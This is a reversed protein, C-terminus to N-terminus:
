SGGLMLAQERQVDEIREHPLWNRTRVDPRQLLLAEILERQRKSPWVVRLWAGGVAQNHCDVCWFRRDADCAIQASPCFPCQVIWRGHNVFARVTVDKAVAGAVKRQSAYMAVIREAPAIRELGPAAYFDEGTVIKDM